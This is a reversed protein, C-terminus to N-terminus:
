IQKKQQIGEEIQEGAFLFIAWILIGTIFFAVIINLITAKLTKNVFNNHM